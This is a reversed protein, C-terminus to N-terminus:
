ASVVADKARATRVAPARARGTSAPVAAGPPEGTAFGLSDSAQNLTAAWEQAEQDLRAAAEAAEDAAAASAVPDFVAAPAGVPIPGGSSSAAFPAESPIDGASAAAGSGGGAVGAVAGDIDMADSPVAETLPSDGFLDSWPASTVRVAKAETCVKDAYITLGWSKTFCIPGMNLVSYVRTSRPWDEARFPTTESLCIGGTAGRTFTRLETLRDAPLSRGVNWKTSLSANKRKDNGPIPLQIFDRWLDYDDLNTVAQGLKKKMFAQKGGDACNLAVVQERVWRLIRTLAAIDSPDPVCVLASVTDESLAQPHASPVAGLFPPDYKSGEAHRTQGLSFFIPGTHGAINIYVVPEVNKKGDADAGSASAGAGEKSKITRSKLVLSGHAELADALGQTTFTKPSSTAM